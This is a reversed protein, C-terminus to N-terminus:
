QILKSEAQELTKQHAEEPTSGNILYFLTRAFALSADNADPHSHTLLTDSKVSSLLHAYTKENSFFAALVSQRMLSGNSLSQFNHRRANEVVKMRVANKKEQSLNSQWDSSNLKNRLGDDGSISLAARCTNGIDPPSTLRWRVYACAVDSADFHNLDICSSLLSMAMEGDDTVVGPGYGFPGGGLLPIQGLTNRDSEFKKRVGQGRLFEYRSGLADGIFQGYLLGVARSTPTSM